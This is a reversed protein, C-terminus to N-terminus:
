YFMGRDRKREQKCHGRRRGTDPLIDKPAQQAAPCSAQEPDHEQADIEEDAVVGAGHRIELCNGSEHWGCQYTFSGVLRTRTRISM